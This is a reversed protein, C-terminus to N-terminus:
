QVYSKEIIVKNNLTSGRVANKAKIGTTVGVGLNITSKKIVVTNDIKKSIIKKNTKYGINVSNKQQRLYKPANKAAKIGSIIKDGFRSKRARSENVNSNLITVERKVEKRNRVQKNSLVERVTKDKVRKGNEYIRGNVIDVYQADSNPKTKAM